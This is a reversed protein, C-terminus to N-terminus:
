EIAWNVLEGISRNFRLISPFYLILTYYYRITITHTAIALLIRFVLQLIRPAFHM